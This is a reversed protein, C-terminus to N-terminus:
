FVTLPRWHAGVFPETHTLASQSRDETMSEPLDSELMRMLVKDDKDHHMLDATRHKPLPVASLSAVVTM